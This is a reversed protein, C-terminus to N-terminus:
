SKNDCVPTVSTTIKLLMFVKINKLLSEAEVKDRLCLPTTIQSQQLKQFNTVQDSPICNFVKAVFMIILNNTM